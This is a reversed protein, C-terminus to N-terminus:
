LGVDRLSDRAQSALGRYPFSTMVLRYVEIAEDSRSQSEYIKGMRIMAFGTMENAPFLDVMKEVVHIAKNWKKLQYYSESLLFYAEIAETTFSYEHIFSELIQSSAKYDEKRFQTKAKKFLTNARLKVGLDNESDQYTLSALKRYLYTQQVEEKQQPLLQAVEQQYKRLEYDSIALELETQILKKKLFESEAKHPSHEFFYGQFSIYSQLVLVTMVLISYVFVHNKM